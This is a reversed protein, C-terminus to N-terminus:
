RADNKELIERLKKREKVAGVGDGLRADLKALQEKAQKVSKEVTKTDTLIGGRRDNDGPIPLREARHM